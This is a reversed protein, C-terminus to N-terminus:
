GAAQLFDHTMSFTHADGCGCNVPSLDSDSVFEFGGRKGLEVCAAREPSMLSAQAWFLPRGQSVKHLALHSKALHAPLGRGRLQSILSSMPGKTNM